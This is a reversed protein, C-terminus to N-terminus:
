PRGNLPLRQIHGDPFQIRRAWGGFKKADKLPFGTITVQEGPTFDGALWAEGNRAPSEGLESTLKGDDDTVEMFIHIHPNSWEVKTVVGTAAITRNGDFESAFSHHALAPMVSLFLGAFFLGVVTLWSRGPCLNM